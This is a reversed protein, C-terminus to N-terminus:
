PVLMSIKVELKLEEASKDKLSLSLKDIKILLKNRQVEDLFILIEDIAGEGRFDANYLGVGSEETMGSPSLSIISLGSDHAIKELEKLLDGSAEQKSYYPQRLYAKHKKYEEIIRDKRAQIERYEKVRSEAAAIEEGTKRIKDGLPNLIMRIFIFVFIVNGAILVWVKKTKFGAIINM